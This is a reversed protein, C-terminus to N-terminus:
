LHYPKHNTNEGWPQSLVWPMCMSPVYEVVSCPGRILRWRGSKTTELSNVCDRHHHKQELNWWKKLQVWASSLKRLTCFKVGLTWDKLWLCFPISGGPGHHGAVRAASGNVQETGNRCSQIVSIRHWGLSFTGAPCWDLYGALVGEQGHVQGVAVWCGLLDWSALM